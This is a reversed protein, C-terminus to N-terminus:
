PSERRVIRVESAGRGREPQRSQCIAEGNPELTCTMVRRFIYSDTCEVDADDSVQLQGDDAFSASVEGTCQAGDTQAIQQEGRGEADFCMRWSEVETVSGSESNRLRYDSALSWCGELLAIDQERWREADLNDPEPEPEPEPEPAPAPPPCARLGALSRELGRMRDELAARRELEAGLEPSPGGADPDRCFNLYESTGLRLGCGPLLTAAQVLSLVLLILAGFVGILVSRRM